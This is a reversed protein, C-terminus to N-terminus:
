HYIGDKNGPAQWLPLYGDSGGLSVGDLEIWAHAVIGEGRDQVGIRLEPHRGRLVRGLMLSQRLCTGEAFPWHRMVRLVGSIRRRDASGLATPVGPPAPPQTTWNLRVGLAKALLPLHITRLGVEVLTALGLMRVVILRDPVPLSWGQAVMRM